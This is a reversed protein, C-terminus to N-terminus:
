HASAIPSSPRPSINEVASLSLGAAVPALVAPSRLNFQWLLGCLVCLKKLRQNVSIRKLAFVGLRLALVESAFKAEWARWLISAV